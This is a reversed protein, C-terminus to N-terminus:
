GIKAGASSIVLFPGANLWHLIIFFLVSATDISKELCFAGVVYQVDDIKRRKKQMGFWMHFNCQRPSKVPSPQQNEPVVQWEIRDIPNRPRVFYCRRIGPQGNNEM